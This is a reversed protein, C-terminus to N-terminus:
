LPLNTSSTLPISTIPLILQTKSTFQTYPNLTPSTSNDFTMTISSILSELTHSISSKHSRSILDPDTPTPTAINPVFQAITTPISVYSSLYSFQNTPSSTSTTHLFPFANEDFRVHTSIFIKSPIPELCWFGKHQAACGLFVYPM